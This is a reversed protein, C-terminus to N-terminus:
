GQLSPFAIVKLIKCKKRAALMLQILEKDWANFLLQFESPTLISVDESLNNTKRFTRHKNGLQMLVRCYDVRTRDISCRLRREDPKYIAPTDLGLILEASFDFIHLRHDGVGVKHSSILAAECNIGSTAFVRCIPTSFPSDEDCLERFQEELEIDEATFAEQLKGEYIHQNFDGMLIIEEGNKKWERLDLLLDYDFM